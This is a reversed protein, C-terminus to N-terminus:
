GVPTMRNEFGPFCLTATESTSPLGLLDLRSVMVKVGIRQGAGRKNRVTPIAMGMAEAIAADPERGADIAWKDNSFGHSLNSSNDHQTLM